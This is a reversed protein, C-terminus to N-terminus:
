RTPGEVVHNATLVYGDATVIVGSGLSQEKRTRPQSQGL